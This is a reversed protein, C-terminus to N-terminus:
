WGALLEYFHWVGLVEARNVPFKGTVMGVVTGNELFVLSGSDGRDAFGGEREVFIHTEDVDVITGKTMGTRFGIKYVDKNVLFDRLSGPNEEFDWFINFQLVRVSTM